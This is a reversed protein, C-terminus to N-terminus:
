RVYLLVLLKWKRGRVYKHKGINEVRRFYSRTPKSNKRFKVVNKQHGSSQSTFVTLNKIM